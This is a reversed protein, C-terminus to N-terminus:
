LKWVILYTYSLTNDNGIDWPFVGIWWDGVSVYWMNHNSIEVAMTSRPAVCACIVFPFRFFLPCIRAINCKDMISFQLLWEVTRSIDWVCLVAGDTNTHLWYYNRLWCREASAEVKSFRITIAVWCLEIVANFVNIGDWGVVVTTYLIHTHCGFSM